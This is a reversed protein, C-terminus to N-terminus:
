TNVILNIMEFHPYKKCLKEKKKKREGIKKQPLTHYTNHIDNIWELVYLLSPLPLCSTGASVACLLHAKPQGRTEM